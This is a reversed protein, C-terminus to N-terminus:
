PGDLNLEPLAVDEIVTLTGDILWEWLPDARSRFDRREILDAGVVANFGVRNAAGSWYTGWVAEILEETSASMAEMKRAIPVVESNVRAIRLAGVLECRKM